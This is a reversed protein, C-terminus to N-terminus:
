EQGWVEGGGGRVQYTHTFAPVPPPSGWTETVAVTAWGSFLVAGVMIAWATLTRVARQRTTRALSSWILDSPEPALRASLRTRSFGPPAPGEGAIGGPWASHPDAPSTGCAGNVGSGNVGTGNASDSNVGGGNVAHEASGRERSVFTRAHVPEARPSAVLGSPLHRLTAHRLPQTISRSIRSLASTRTPPVNPFEFLPSTGIFDILPWTNRLRALPSRPKLEQLVQPPPPSPVNRTLPSPSAYFHFAHSNRPM